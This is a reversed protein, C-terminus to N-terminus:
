VPNPSAFITPTFSSTCYLSHAKVATTIRPRNIKLAQQSTIFPLPSYPLVFSLFTILRVLIRSMWNTEKKRRKWKLQLTSLYLIWGNTWAGFPGLYSSSPVASALSGSMWEPRVHQYWSSVDGHWWRSGRLRHMILFSYWFPLLWAEFWASWHFIPMGLLSKPAAGFGM